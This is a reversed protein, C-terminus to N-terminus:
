HGNNLIMKVLIVMWIILVSKKKSLQNLFSQHIKNTKLNIIKKIHLHLQILLRQKLYKIKNIKSSHLHFLSKNIQHITNM